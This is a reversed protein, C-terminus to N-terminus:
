PRRKRNIFEDAPLGLWDVMAIFALLSPNQGRRMRTFTSSHIGMIRAMERYSFGDQQAAKLNALLKKRDFTKM